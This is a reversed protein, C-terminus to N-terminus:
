QGEVTIGTPPPTRVGSSDRVGASTGLPVRTHACRWVSTQMSWKFLSFTVGTRLIEDHIHNLGSDAHVPGAYDGGFLLAAYVAM